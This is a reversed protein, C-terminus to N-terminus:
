YQIIEIEKIRELHNVNKTIIKKIGNSLIISAILIDNDDIKQVQSELNDYIEVVVDVEKYGM